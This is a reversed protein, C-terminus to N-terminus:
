ASHSPLIVCMDNNLSDSLDRQRILHKETLTVKLSREREFRRLQFIHSDTIAKFIDEEDQDFCQHELNLYQLIDRFIIDKYSDGEQMVVKTLGVLQTEDEHRYFHVWLEFAHVDDRLSMNNLLPDYLPLFQLKLDFFEIKVFGSPFKFEDTEYYKETRESGDEEVILFRSPDLNRLIKVDIDNMSLHSENSGVIHRYEGREYKRIYEAIHGFFLSFFLPEEILQDLIGKILQQATWDKDHIVEITRSEASVGHHLPLHITLAFLAKNLCDPDRLHQEDMQERDKVNYAVIDFHLGDFHLSDGEEEMLNLLTMDSELQTCGSYGWQSADQSWLQIHKPDIDYYSGLRKRVMGFTTMKDVTWKHSLRTCNKGRVAELRKHQRKWESTERIQIDINIMRVLSEMFKDVACYWFMGKKKFEMDKCQWYSALNQHHQNDNISPTQAGIEAPKLSSFYPHLPNIQFVFIDGNYFENDVVDDLNFATVRQESDFRDVTEMEEYFQYKPQNNGKGGAQFERMKINLNYLSQLCGGNAMSNPILKSEIYTSIHGFTISTTKVRLWDVFYMRQALIDFYKLAVLILRANQKVKPGELTSTKRDDLLIFSRKKEMVNGIRDHVSKIRKITPNTRLSHKEVEDDTWDGDGEFSKKLDVKILANPRMTQNKRETYNYVSLHGLPIGTETSWEWLLSMYTTDKCMLKHSLISNLGMDLTNVKVTSLYEDFYFKFSLGSIAVPIFSRHQRGYGRVLLKNRERGSNQHTLLDFGNVYSVWCKKKEVDVSLSMTEQFCLETNQAFSECLLVQHLSVDRRLKFTM